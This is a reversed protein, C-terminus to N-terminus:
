KSNRSIGVDVQRTHLLVDDRWCEGALLLFFALTFLINQPPLLIRRVQHTEQASLDGDDLRRGVRPSGDPSLVPTRSHSSVSLLFLCFINLIFCEGVLYQTKVNSSHVQTSNFDSSASVPSDFKSFAPSSASHQLGGHLGGSLKPM